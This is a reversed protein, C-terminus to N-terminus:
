LQGNQKKPRASGCKHCGRLGTGNAAKRNAAGYQGLSLPEGCLPCPYTKPTLQVQTGVPTPEPYAGVRPLLQPAQPLAPVNGASEQNFVLSDVIVRIDRGLATVKDELSRPPTKSLTLRAEKIAYHLFVGLILPVIAAYLLTMLWGYGNTRWSSLTPWYALDARALYDSGIAFNGIFTLFLFFFSLWAVGAIKSGIAGVELLIVFAATLLAGYLWAAGEAQIAMHFPAVMLYTFPASILMALATGAAFFVFRFNNKLAQWNM